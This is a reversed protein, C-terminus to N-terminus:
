RCLPLETLGRRRSNGGGGGGMMQIRVLGRTGQIKSFPFTGVSQFITTVKPKDIVARVSSEGTPALVNIKENMININL